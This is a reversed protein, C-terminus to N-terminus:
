GIRQGVSPTWRVAPLEAALKELEGLQLRLQARDLKESKGPGFLQQKLWAIQTRLHAIEERLLQVESPSTAAVSM